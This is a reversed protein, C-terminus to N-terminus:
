QWRVNLSALPVRDPSGLRTMLELGQEMWQSKVLTTGAWLVLPLEKIRKTRGTTKTRMLEALVLDGVFRISRPPLHQIDDERLTCYAKLLMSFAKLRNGAPAGERSVYLEIAALLFM